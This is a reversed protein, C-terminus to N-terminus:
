PESIEEGWEYEMTVTTTEYRVMEPSSLDRRKRTTKGFPFDESFPIPFYYTNIKSNLLTKDQTPMPVIIQFMQNTFAVIFQMYPVFGSEPKRRLLILHVGQYPAYGPTFQEFAIMPKFPFSEYTHEQLRIWDTLHKMDELADLPAIAIAMKVLCKFVAMPIYSQRTAMITLTKEEEDLIVPDDECTEIKLGMEELSIRLVGDPGKYTPVGRKGFIQCITRIPGLYKAFHDEINSGFDRNCIDCEDISILTHNGISEPVAHAETAFTVDPKSRGCYRCTGSDDGIYTKRELNMLVYKAAIEYNSAFYQMPENMNVDM